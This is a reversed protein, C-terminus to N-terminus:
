RWGTDACYINKCGNPWDAGGRMQLSPRVGSFTASMLQHGLELVAVAPYQPASPRGGGGPLRPCCVVLVRAPKACCKPSSKSDMEGPRARQRPGCNERKGELLGRVLEEAADFDALLGHRIPRLFTWHPPHRGQLAQASNGLEVPGNSSLDWLVASSCQAELRQGFAAPLAM